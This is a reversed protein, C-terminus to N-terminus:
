ESNELPSYAGGHATTSHSDCIEAPNKKTKNPPINCHLAAKPQFNQKNPSSSSGNLNNSNAVPKGNQKTKEM